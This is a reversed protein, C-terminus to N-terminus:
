LWYPSPTSLSRECPKLRPMFPTPKPNRLPLITLESFGAERLLETRRKFLRKKEKEDSSERISKMLRKWERTRELNKLKRLEKAILANKLQEMIRFRTQIINDQWPETLLPLTLVCCNQETKAM